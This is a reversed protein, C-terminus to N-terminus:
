AYTYSELLNDLRELFIAKETWSPFNGFESDNIPDFLNFVEDVSLDFFDEAAVYCTFGNFSPVMEQEDWNNLGVKLNLGAANFVPDLAAWGLACAQTDCTWQDMSIQDDDKDAVLARLHRLRELNPM